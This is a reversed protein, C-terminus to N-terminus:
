GAIGDRGGVTTELSRWAIVGALAIAALVEWLTGHAGLTLAVLTPAVTESVPWALQHIAAYRGQLNPPALAAALADATPAYVAEGIGFLIAAFLLTAFAVAPALPALLLSACAIAWLSAALQLNRLRRRGRVLRQSWVLGIATTATILGTVIGPLWAPLHLHDLAFVPIAMVPATLLLTPIVNLGALALNVRDALVVGYGSATEGHERDKPGRAGRSALLVLILSAVFSVANAAVILRLGAEQGALFAVGSLSQGASIGALRAGRIRGFWSELEHPAAISAVLPTFAGWFVRMGAGLLFAGLAYGWASPWLLLSACGAAGLLDAAAVVRAPSTRDAAAGALPGIAVGCAAAISLILGATALSLHSIRMAYVLEFPAFLGGGVTDVLMAAVLLRRQWTVGLWTPAEQMGVASM